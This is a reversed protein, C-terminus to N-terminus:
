DLTGYHLNLDTTRLHCYNLMQYIRQELASCRSGRRLFQSIAFTIRNGTDSCHGTTLSSVSLSFLPQSSVQMVEFGVM